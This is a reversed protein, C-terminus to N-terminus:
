MHDKYTQYNEAPITFESRDQENKREKSGNGDKERKKKRGGERRDRRVSGEKRGQKTEM